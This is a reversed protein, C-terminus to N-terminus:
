DGFIDELDELLEEVDTDYEEVTEEEEFELTGMVDVLEAEDDELSQLIVAAATVMSTDDGRLSCFFEQESDIIVCAFCLDHESCIAKIDELKKELYPPIM